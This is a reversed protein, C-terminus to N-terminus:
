TVSVQDARRGALAQFRELVLQRTTLAAAKEDRAQLVPFTSLAYEVEGLDFGYVHFWAADLEATLARRRDLDWDFPRGTYGLDQALDQLDDTTYFLEVIRPRMWEAVTVEPDWAAAGRLTAPPVVPLQELVFQNLNRGSLKLRTCFDFVLSSMCAVLWPALDLAEPGVFMVNASDSVGGTPVVCPLATRENMPNTIKRIVPLWPKKWGRLRREVEEAQVWYQPLVKFVPDAKEAPSLERDAAGDFTAWRPDYLHFTKSEVLPWYSAKGRRFIAGNLTWGDGELERRTRFGGSDSTMNFLGQRLEVSWPNGAAARRNLLVPLRRYLGTMLTVDRQSRFVPCTGTNPNLLLIEEPTMEFVRELDSLEEVSHANFLFRARETSARQGSAVTLLCFQQQAHVGPFLLRKNEFAFLSVIELGEVLARFFDKTTEDTAIGPPVIMGTSGRDGLLSRMTEAFVAYTNIRGQGCLPFRGSGRVFQGVSDAQRLGARYESWLVPDAHELDAIMRKRTSGKATAIAPQRVAFWESEKFEIQGWPPNGLVVDFGGRGTAREFVDPFALHWHHFAYTTALDTILATQAADISESSTGARRVVSDTIAPEGAVKRSFFAACWADAGRTALSAADSSTLKRYRAEIEEVSEVTEDPLSNIASMAGGMELGIASIGSELPLWDQGRREDANRRRLSAAQDRDDGDLARFAEDPLGAALLESTTGILSDGRVIHHDLFSLPRGPELAEMWLSVKCLEVAMENVDVGYICHGIVDRLARKTAEPPPEDDGSRITALRKALRHAAAILFHGSGCAPDVVKIALIAAEANEARAAEEVVPDLATDLLSVILSTPTYYSGTSKREHGAATELAFAGAELNIRPHLELLSEYVSGLEEAGLNRYDTPRSKREEMHFALAHIGALFSRNSIQASGLHRLADARWLYSGLAPMGLPQSGSRDLARAVVKVTEYIDAHMTGRRREALGRLRDMSYFSMYRERVEPPTGPVLLQDRDEAVFLFLLRYVVRLLQRYYDQTSLSGSRLADRLPRNEPHSLFGQGLATIATEVGARLQELARSGQAEAEKAWQELWCDAPEAGEVRSEHLLLWLLVFDSYVQGEMMATLDFSVFAQRTLAANDRLLRLERGNSAIGWLYDPSSNLMEQVLSHPSSRAAGAVRATTKDLEIGAGVLHIPVHGGWSHSIPFQRGNVEVAKAPQLRGYGLEDFLVLLWRERTITTAPDGPALTALSDRFATWAGLARNWSNNIMEGLRENANLHYDAPKLGPIAANNQAIRALLDPPLLGGETAVTSFMGGRLAM